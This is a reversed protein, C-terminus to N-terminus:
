QISLGEHRNAARVIKRSHSCEELVVKRRRRRPHTLYKQNGKEDRKNSSHSKWLHYPVVLKRFPDCLHPLEFLMFQLVATYTWTWIDCM